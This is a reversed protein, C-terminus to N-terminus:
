LPKERSDYGNMGAGTFGSQGTRTTGCDAQSGSQREVWRREPLWRRM